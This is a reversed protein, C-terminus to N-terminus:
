TSWYAMWTTGYSRPRVYMSWITVSVLEVGDSVEVERDLEDLEDALM